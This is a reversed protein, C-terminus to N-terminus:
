ACSCQACRAARDSGPRSGIVSTRHCRRWEGANENLTTWEETRVRGQYREDGGVRMKQFPAESLANRTVLRDRPQRGGQGISM